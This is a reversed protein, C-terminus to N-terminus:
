EHSNRIHEIPANERLTRWDPWSRGENKLQKDHIQKAIQEPTAGTRWAGDLALLVVDIWEELDSPDEQIEELEKKIHNIVGETRGGPGFTDLSFKKQRELHEILNMNNEM